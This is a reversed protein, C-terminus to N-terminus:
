QVDVQMEFIVLGNKKSDTHVFLQRKRVGPYGKTNFSLEIPVEKHPEVVNAGVKPTTCACSTNVEKIKVPVDEDNKLMFTHKVIEGEKAKGYDFFNPDKVAEAKPRDAYRVSNDAHVLSIGLFLFMAALFMKVLFMHRKMFDGFTQSSVGALAMCYVVAIPVMFMLNYLILYSFAWVKYPATKLIYMITPLYLQGTCLSEFISIVFGTALASGLLMFVNRQPENEKRVGYQDGIIKQIRSKVSKPLHLVM